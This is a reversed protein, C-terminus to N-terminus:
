KRYLIITPLEILENLGTAPVRNTRSFQALVENGSDVWRCSAVGSDITLTTDIARRHSRYSSALWSAVGRDNLYYRISSSCQGDLLILASDVGSTENGRIMYDVFGEYEQVRITKYNHVIDDIQVGLRLLTDSKLPVIAGVECHMDEPSTCAVCFMMVGVIIYIYIAM